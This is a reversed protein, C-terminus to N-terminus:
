SRQTFDDALVEEKDAEIGILGAEAVQRPSVKKMEFGKTMDTDMFAVHLGLVLTKQNRLEVRLANTFSWVASKSASYAALMPRALWSADSLVDM